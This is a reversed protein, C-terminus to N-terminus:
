KLKKVVGNSFNINLNQQKSQLRKSEQLINDLIKLRFERGIFDNPFDEFHEVVELERKKDEVDKKYKSLKLALEMRKDLIRLVQVDLKDIEARFKKLEMESDGV